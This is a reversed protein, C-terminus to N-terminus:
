LRRAGIVAGAVVGALAGLPTWFFALGMAYAGEAQSISFVEAAVLGLTFVAAAGGALGLVGGLVAGGVSMNGGSAKVTVTGCASQLVFRWM